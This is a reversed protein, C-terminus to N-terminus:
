VTVLVCFMWLFVTVPTFPTSPMKNAVRLIATSPLRGQCSGIWYRRPICRPCRTPWHWPRSIFLSPASREATSAKRRPPIALTPWTWPVLRWILGAAGLHYACRAATWPVRTLWDRCRHATGRNSRSDLWRGSWEGALVLEQQVGGDSPGDMERVCRLTGWSRGHGAGTHLCVFSIDLLLSSPPKGCRHTSMSVNSYM